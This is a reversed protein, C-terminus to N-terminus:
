KRRIEKETIIVDMKQDYEGTPINLCIQEDYCLGVSIVDNQYLFKDYYGKGYGIRNFDIDFGLGPVICIPKIKINKVYKNASKPESIGYKGISIDDLDEIKYFEINEDFTKPAYVDIGKNILVEAIKFTDVEDNYSLYLLIVKTEDLLSYFNQAIIDNKVLKDKINKRIYKLNKRLNNKQNIM